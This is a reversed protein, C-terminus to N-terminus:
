EPDHNVTVLHGLIDAVVTGHVLQDMSMRENVLGCEMLSEWTQGCDGMGYHASLRGLTSAVQDSTVLLDPEFLNSYENVFPFYNNAITALLYPGEWREMLDQVIPLEKLNQNRIDPCQWAILLGLELRTLQATEVAESFDPPLNKLEWRKKLQRYKSLLDRDEPSKMLEEQIETLQWELPKDRSQVWKIIEDKLSHELGDLRSVEFQLPDRLAKLAARLLTLRDDDPWNLPIDNLLDALNEAHEQRFYEVGRTFWTEMTRQENRRLSDVVYKKSKWSDPLKSLQLWAEAPTNTFRLLEAQCFLIEPTPNAWAGLLSLLTDEAAPQRKIFANFAILLNVERSPTDIAVDRLLIEAKQTNGRCMAQWAAGLRGGNEPVPNVFRYTEGEHQLTCFFSTGSTCATILTTLLLSIWPQIRIIAVKM